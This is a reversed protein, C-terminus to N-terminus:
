AVYTIEKISSDLNYHTIFEQADENTPFVPCFAMIVAPSTNNHTNLATVFSEDFNPSSVIYCKM